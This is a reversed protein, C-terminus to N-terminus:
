PLTFLLVKVIPTKGAAEILADGLGIDAPPPVDVREQVQVLAVEPLTVRSPDAAYVPKVPECVM